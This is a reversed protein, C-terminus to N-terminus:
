FPLTRTVFLDPRLYLQAISKDVGCKPLAILAFKEGPAISIQEIPHNM